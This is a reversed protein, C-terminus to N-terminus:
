LSKNKKLATLSGLNAPELQNIVESFPLGTRLLV